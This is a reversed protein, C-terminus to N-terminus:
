SIRPMWQEIVRRLGPQRMLLWEAVRVRREMPIRWEPGDPIGAVMALITLEPIEEIVRIALDLESADFAVGSVGLLAPVVLGTPPGNALEGFCNGHDVSFIRGDTMRLVAQPDRIYLWTQFCVVLAWSKWNIQSPRLSTGILRLEDDNFVDDLEISGRRLGVLHDLSHDRPVAAAGIDLVTTDPAVGVYSGFRDAILEAGM